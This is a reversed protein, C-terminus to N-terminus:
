CPSGFRRKQLIETRTTRGRWNSYYKNVNVISCPLVLFCGLSDGPSLYLGGCGWSGETVLSFWWLLLTVRKKAWQNEPLFLVLHGPPVEVGLETSGHQSSQHFRGDRPFRPFWSRWDPSCLISSVPLLLKAFSNNCSITLPAVGVEVGQNGSGLMRATPCSACHM